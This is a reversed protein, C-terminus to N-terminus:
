AATPKDGDFGAEIYSKGLISVAISVPANHAIDAFVSEFMELSEKTFTLFKEPCGGKRACMIVTQAARIHELVEEVTPNWEVDSVFQAM